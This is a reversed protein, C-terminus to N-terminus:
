TEVFPVACASHGREIRAVAWSAAERVMPDDHSCAAQRLAALANADQRNGLVIAANRAIGARGARRLPTGEFLARWSADDLLLLSELRVRSWRDLPAFPDGDRTDLEARAGAGANFPCVTQCDDCGFLHTGVGERLGPPIASRHEITLYSVCRRPDLVFASPFANTPCADLCRTCAGCREEISQRRLPLRPPSATLELTTVVEGLLVMSGLGPVILMGNKGVFGLGARVAWARELVPADDCMPRARVPHEPTGLSRLFSALRRVRRRLFRHYDHGRAYRAISPVLSEPDDGERHPGREPRQYRRAVCVVSKAGALIGDGDLRARVGEHAALWGMEGHMGGAIFAEYRAFDGEIAESARAIGVADFGLRAAAARVQDSFSVRSTPVNGM